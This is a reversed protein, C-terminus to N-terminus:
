RLIFASLAAEASKVSAEALLGASIGLALLRRLATVSLAARELLFLAASGILPDRISELIINPALNITEVPTYDMEEEKGKM